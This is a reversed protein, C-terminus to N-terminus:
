KKLSEVAEEADGAAEDLEEVAEELYEEPIGAVAEELAKGLAEEANEVAEGVAEEVAEEAEAASETIHGFMPVDEEPEEAEDKGDNEEERAAFEADIKAEMAREAAERKKKKLRVMMIVAFLFVFISIFQSTSLPGINGRPDNRLFEIIFRGVSYFLMYLLAPMGGDWEKDKRTYWLLFFALLFDCGSSILQTPILNVGAPALSDAPFVVGLHSTTEHGYCCGALYCGIRGFGQAMPISPIAVDLYKIFPQNKKKCYVLPALIGAIVGGYLVFGNTVDLLISPDAIVAKIEVLYYTIKAGVIGCLIGIFGMNFMEDASLGHSKARRMGMVVAVIVGIAIMLGYGYVTFSGISFLKMHM